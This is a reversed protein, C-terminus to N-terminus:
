IRLILFGPPGNSPTSVAPLGDGGSVAASVHDLVADGQSQLAPRPSFIDAPLAPRHQSVCCRSDVPESNSPVQAPHCGARHPPVAAAPLFGMTGAAAATILLVVTVIPSVTQM